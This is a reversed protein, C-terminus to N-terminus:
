DLYLKEGQSVYIKDQYGINKIGSSWMISVSVWHCWMEISCLILDVTFLVFFVLEGSTYLIIISVSFFIKLIVGSLSTRCVREVNQLDVKGM